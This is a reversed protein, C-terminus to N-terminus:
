SQEAVRTAERVWLVFEELKTLACARERSVPVHLAVQKELDLATKEIQALTMSEPASFKIAM